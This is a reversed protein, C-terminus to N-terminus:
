PERPQHLPEAAHVGSLASDIGGSLGLIVGPFGNKNVYDALGLMMAHYILANREPEPPLKQPTCVLRGNTSDRQWETLVIAEEFFPMQVALSRDPNLVFSAGEFLVEDQGSVQGLFVFGLGTEVVRSVALSIRQAQKDV